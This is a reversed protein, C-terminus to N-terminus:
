QLQFEPLGLLAIFFAKLRNEVGMKITANTPDNLYAGYEVTWEFDPLGPILVDKLYDLQAQTLPYPLVLDVLAQIMINPDSSNPIGDVVKLVDIGYPRNFIANMSTAMGDTMARRTTLTVSNIWYRYFVPVQYYAKWGAVDPPTFIDQQLTTNLMHLAFWLQYTQNLNFNTTVEFPKITSMTFDVPSKIMAGIANDHYFHDSKLLATLAPQIDYNNSRLIGALPEIVNLEVDDDIFYYVFWRYLNRAMFKSVEVQSLIIDIVKKYEQDGLNNIVANGLRPSLTKTGTDHRNVRFVSSPLPGAPAFAQVNATWGTLARAIEKIDQETYNTYDGPGAEIGKGITFLELLERAYNENPANKNNENGNLYLLMLSNVTMQEVLSKYNGLANDRILKIYQYILKGINANATVFHNHWFLVMKERLSVGENLFLSLQWARVSRQPYNLNQTIAADVWTSGIPVNPDNPENYNIPLGPDPAPAFLKQITLDLGDTVAQAIQKANPAFMARKLLHRATSQDWIGSYPDLTGRILVPPSALMSSIARNTKSSPRYPARTKLLEQFDLDETM